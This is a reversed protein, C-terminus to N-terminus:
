VNDGIQFFLNEESNTIIYFWIYQKPHIYDIKISSYLNYSCDSRFVAYSVM